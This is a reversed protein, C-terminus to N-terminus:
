NNLYKRFGGLLSGLKKITEKIKDYENGSVYKLKFSITLLIEVEISNKWIELNEYSQAM